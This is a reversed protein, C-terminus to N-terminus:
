YSPKSIARIRINENLILLFLYIIFPIINIFIYYEFNILCYNGAFLLVVM